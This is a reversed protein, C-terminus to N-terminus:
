QSASLVRSLHGASGSIPRTAGESTKVPRTQINQYNRYNKPTWNKNKGIKKDIQGPFTYSIYPFLYPFPLSFTHFLYPFSLSFMFFVYPFCWFSPPFFILLNVNKSSVHLYIDFDYCKKPKQPTKSLEQPTKSRTGPAKPLTKSPTPMLIIKPSAKPTM